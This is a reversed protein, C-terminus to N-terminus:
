RRRLRGVFRKLVQFEEVRLIRALGFIVILGASGYVLLVVAAAGIHSIYPTLLTTLTHEFPLLSIAICAALTAVFMKASTKWFDKFHGRGVYHSLLMFSAVGRLVYYVFDSVPVGTVGLLEPRCLIAYMVLQLAVLACNVLAFTMLKRLSAFAKFLFMTVAYIPLSLLWTQLLASVQEVDSGNFAGAHFLEFIPTALVFMLGTLPLILFLTGAMGKSVHKAFSRMDHKAVDDSMETFMTSSLSVAVVGYPLQYWMWAYALASPGSESASLSFANRCTYAILNAVIYILSPLAIRITEKISPDRLDIYPAWRFGSKKLAPVQILFQVAVGATTAISITLIALDPNIHSLPVYAIFGIIVVINNLAPAISTLFFSRSANLVGTIVGGLGYFLIQFAFVRFFAVTQTHVEASGGVTFTQTAVVQDAFICGLLSLTGLLILTINLINITYRNQGRWGYREKQLLLVPLFATALFGGAVLDYLVNPLNNAIQYSSTLVTNGLAFAMAWTRLLGSIRSFLTGLTMLGTNKIISSQENQAM